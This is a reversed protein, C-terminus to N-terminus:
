MRTPIKFSPPIFSFRGYLFVQYIGINLPSEPLDVKNLEDITLSKMMPLNDDEIQLQEDVFCLRM